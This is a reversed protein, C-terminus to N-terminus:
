RFQQAILKKGVVQIMVGMEQGGGKIEWSKECQGNQVPDCGKKKSQTYM